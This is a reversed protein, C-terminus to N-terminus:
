HDELRLDRPPDIQQTIQGTFEPGASRIETPERPMSSIEKLAEVRAAEAEYEDALVQLKAAFKPDGAGVALRMCFDARGQLQASRSPKILKRNTRGM